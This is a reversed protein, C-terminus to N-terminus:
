KFKGEQGVYRIAYYAVPNDEPPCAPLALSLLYFPNIMFKADKSPASDVAKTALPQLWGCLPGLRTSDQLKSGGTVFAQSYVVAAFRAQEWVCHRNAWYKLFSHDYLLM